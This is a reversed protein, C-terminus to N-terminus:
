NMCTLICYAYMLTEMVVVLMYCLFVFVQLKVNANAHEKIQADFTNQLRMIESRASIQVRLELEMNQLEERKEVLNHLRQQLIDNDLGGDIIISCFDFDLSDRGHQVKM